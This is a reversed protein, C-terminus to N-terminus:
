RAAAAARSRYRYYAACAGESSVMPAGLPRAPTCRTGLAPCDPPKRVGRMIQGSICETTEAAAAVRPALRAVADFRAYAPRLALGSRPIVGIGRWDRDAVAFVQEVLRRAHPNGDGHSFRSDRARPYPRTPRRGSRGPSITKGFGPFLSM